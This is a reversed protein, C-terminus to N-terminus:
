GGGQPSSDGDGGSGGGSGGGTGGDSGGETGDEGGAPSQNPGGGPGGDPGGTSVTLKGEETAGDPCRIIYEGEQLELTLTKEQGRMVDEVSGVETGDAERVQFETVTSSGDNSVDFAVRGEEVTIEAPDCGQDSITVAVHVGGTTENLGDTDDGDDGACAGLVLFLAALVHAFSRRAM